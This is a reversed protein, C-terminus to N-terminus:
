VADEIAMRQLVKEEARPQLHLLVFRQLLIRLEPLHDFRGARRRFGSRNLRGRRRRTGRELLGPRRLAELQRAPAFEFQDARVAAVEAAKAEPDSAHGSGAAHSEGEAYQM